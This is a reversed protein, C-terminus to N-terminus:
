LLKRKEGIIGKWYSLKALELSNECIKKVRSLLEINMSFLNQTLIIPLNSNYLYEFAPHFEIIPICGFYLAEWIRYCDFGNGVPCLCFQHTQLMQCYREFPVDKEITTYDNQHCQQLFYYLDWRENTYFQWNAYFIKNRIPQNQQYKEYEVFFSQGGDVNNIGFPIGSLRPDDTICCNVMFWHVVNNPIENFTAVTWSYCKISYKDTLRCQEKECRPPLNINKYEWDSKSFMRVAKHMDNWVPYDKQYCLGYDSRPSVIVYRKGNNKIAKFFQPIWDMVVCVIGSPLNNQGTYEYDCIQKYSECGIIENSTM